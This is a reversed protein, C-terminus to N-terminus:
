RDRGQPGNEDALHGSQEDQRREIEHQRGPQFAADLSALVNGASQSGNGHRYYIWGADELRCALRHLPYLSVLVLVLWAYWPM